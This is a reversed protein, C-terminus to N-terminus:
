YLIGGSPQAVLKECLNGGVLASIGYGQAMRHIILSFRHQQVQDSARAEGAQLPHRM